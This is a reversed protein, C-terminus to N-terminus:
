MEYVRAEAGLRRGKTVNGGKNKEIGEDGKKPWEYRKWAGKERRWEGKGM